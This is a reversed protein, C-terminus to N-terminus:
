ANRHKFMRQRHSSGVLEAFVYGRFVMAVHALAGIVVTMVLDLVLNRGVGQTLYLYGVLFLPLNPVIWELWNEQLFRISEQITQMGGYTGRQYIVEPAANLALLVVLNFVLLLVAGQRGQIVMALLFNAIWLVFSLNLVSWFYAGLSKKVDALSVRSRAVIEAVFFIYGSFIAARGLALVIGGIFGLQYALSALLRYAVIALIPLLLTWLNKRIAVLAHRLAEAYLRSYVTLVSM